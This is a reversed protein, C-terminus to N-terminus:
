KDLTKMEYYDQLQIARQKVLELNTSVAITRWMTGQMNGYMLYYFELEAEKYKVWNQQAIELKTKEEANLLSLLLNYNKELEEQWGDIAELVCGVMGAKSHNASDELCMKLRLDIPHKEQSENQASVFFSSGIFLSLLLKRM